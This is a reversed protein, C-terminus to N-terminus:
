STTSSGLPSPATEERRTAASCLNRHQPWHRKQCRPGCYFVNRCHGCRAKAILDCQDCLLSLERVHSGSTSKDEFQVLPFLHTEHQMPMAGVIRGTRGQQSRQARSNFKVRAGLGVSWTDNRRKTLHRLQDADPPREEALWKRIMSAAEKHRGMGAVARGFVVKPRVFAGLGQFMAEALQPELFQAHQGCYVEIAHAECLEAESVTGAGKAILFRVEEKKAM